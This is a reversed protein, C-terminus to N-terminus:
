SVKKVTPTATGNTKGPAPMVKKKALSSTKPSAIEDGLETPIQHRESKSAGDLDSTPLDSAAADTGFGHDGAKAHGDEHGADNGSDSILKNQSTVTALETHVM